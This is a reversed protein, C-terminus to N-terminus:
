HKQFFFYKKFIEFQIKLNGIKSPNKNYNIVPINVGEDIIVDLNINNKKKSIQNSVKFELFDNNIKYKGNLNLVKSGQNSQSFNINTKNFFIKKINKDLISNQIPKSLDIFSDKILGNIKLNYDIIKFTKDLTLTLENTLNGNLNFKNSLIFSPIIPAYKRSNKEDLNLTNKISASLFINKDIEFNIKSQSFTIDNIKGNISEFLGKNKNLSFIFDTNELKIEKTIKTILNKVHGDVQYDKVKFFEDFNIDLRAKIEGNQVNNLILSKFNSPKTNVILKKLKKYSLYDMDIYVNKITLNNKIISKVEVYARIEKVPFQIKNIFILPKDTSVFISLNKIDLKILIKNFNLDINSNTEVIKQSILKNFRKTEIGKTSLIITIITFLGLFLLLFYISIKKM